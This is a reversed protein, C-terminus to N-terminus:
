EEGQCRFFERVAEPNMGTFISNCSSIMYGSKGGQEYCRKVDARVLDLEAEFLLNVDFNGVLILQDGYDRKIEDLRNGALTELGHVGAFGAEVAYPLLKEMRGDSHWIVPVSLEKVVRRHYPLILERWLQPSIMPGGRHAADDGMVIVEAGFEIARKFIALCWDTRAELVAHVFPMDSKFKKFMNELGMAMYAGMFPGIHTGYFLCHDPYKTRIVAVRQPNFFHDAYTMPPTYRKLDDATQVAGYFYMGKKWVRGFEDVGDQWANSDEPTQSPMVVVDQGLEPYASYPDSVGLDDFLADIWVEFRPTRDPLKKELVAHVRERSNM